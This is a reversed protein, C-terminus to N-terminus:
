SIFSSLMASFKAIREEVDSKSNGRGTFTGEPNTKFLQETAEIIRERSQLLQEQQDLVRSLSVVVADYFAVQYKSEWAGKKPSYPVFVRAGYIGIALSLTRTYLDRLIALDDASFSRARTMYLDLFGQMGRTYHKAHRLAFFRLVIEADKLKEYLGHEKIAAGPETEDESYKPMGFAERFDNLKTLEILLDNFAGQFLCNRLEQRELEIGGTNLRAFV